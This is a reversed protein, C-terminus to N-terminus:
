ASEKGLQDRLTALGRSVRKRIVAESCRLEGAIETYPREEVIDAEVVHRQSEPLAQLLKLVPECGLRDIRELDEDDLALPAMGLRRRASAEVRGRRRSRALKHRRSRLCGRWYLVRGLAIAHCPPLCPPSCRRLWIPPLSLIPCAAAFSCCCRVSMVVYFASFAEADERAAILLREDSEESAMEREGPEGNDLRNVGALRLNTVLGAAVGM